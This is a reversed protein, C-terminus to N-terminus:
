NDKGHLDYDYDNWQDKDNNSQFDQNASIHPDYDDLVVFITMLSPIIMTMMAANQVHISHLDDGGIGYLDNDDDCYFM